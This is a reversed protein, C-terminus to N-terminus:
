DKMKNLERALAAKTKEYLAARKDPQMLALAQKTEEILRDLEAAQAPDLSFHKEKSEILVKVKGFGEVQEGKHWYQIRGTELDIFTASVPEGNLEVASIYQSVPSGPLINM